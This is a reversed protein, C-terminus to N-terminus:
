SAVAALVAARRRYFQTVAEEVGAWPSDPAAVIAGGLRYAPQGNVRVASIQLGSQRLRTVAARGTHPLWGFTQCIADLAVTGQQAFLGALRGQVGRLQPMAPAAAAAPAVVQRKSEDIFAALFHLWNAVKGANCTGSHQRFEITGHRHFAQLNVKFYRDGQARVMGDISTAALMRELMTTPIGRCFHNSDARRSQPMIADIAAEHECYRRVIAKVDAVSLDSADFHVHFGCTRNATAGADALAEAVAMAEAIGAEGQLIPSVVEFGGRVSADSVIKWHRRTTHNYSESRVSIGAARLANLANETTVNVIELEIGFKREM